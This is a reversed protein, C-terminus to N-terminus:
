LFSSEHSGQELVLVVKIRTVLMPPRIVEVEM